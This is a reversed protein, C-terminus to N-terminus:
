CFCTSFIRAFRRLMENSSDLALPLTPVTLVLNDASGKEGLSEATTAQELGPFSLQPGKQILSALCIPVSLGPFSKTISQFLEEGYNWLDSLSLACLCVFLFVVPM